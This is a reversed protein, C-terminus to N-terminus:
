LKKKEEKRIKNLNMALKWVNKLYHDDNLIKLILECNEDNFYTYSFYRFQRVPSSLVYERSYRDKKLQPISSLIRKVIKAGKSGKFAAFTISSNVDHVYKENENALKIYPHIELYEENTINSVDSLYYKKAIGEYPSKLNKGEVYIPFNVLPTESDKCVEIWYDDALVEFEHTNIDYYSFNEYSVFTEVHFSSHPMITVKEFNKLERKANFVIKNSKLVYVQVVEKHVYDTDNILDFSIKVKGDVELQTKDINFNEYRVDSYSLGYGFPFLLNSPNRGYYRYGVFISEKHISDMRNNTLYNYIYSKDLKKFFSEALRGSPNTKGYLISLIAENIGEGGLYAELVAKSLSIVEEIEIVSGNELVVILDDRVKSLERLLMLQSLPLLANERDFGEAEIEPPLGLFVVVKDKDKINDLVEQILKKSNPVSFSDYGRLYTVHSSYKKVEKLLNTVKYPNVVSSGAGQYRPRNVFEGVFLVSEEERLPLINHENKLLVMSDKAIEVALNHHEDFDFDVPENNEYKKFCYYNKEVIENIENESLERNKYAKYLVHYNYNCGYPMELNLGNKHAKVADNVACWDSVVFGEFGWKNRLVDTLLYKSEGVYEGNVKNYSSMISDPKAEIVAKKFAALYIENLAREDVVENLRARDLEQSNVCYHKLSVGVNNSQVGKIYATALEGTLYPDESFYEFNRGCLPNRKINIGPGLLVDIRQNLCEKGLYDGMKYLLEKNFSCASLCAPPYCIAVHSEKFVELKECTKEKRLGHPGDSMYITKLKLSEIPQTRWNDKGRLFSIKEEISLNKINEKIDM